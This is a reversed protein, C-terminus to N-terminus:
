GPTLKGSEHEAFDRLAETVLPDVGLGCRPDRGEHRRNEASAATRVDVDASRTVLYRGQAFILDFHIRTLARLDNRYDLLWILGDRDRFTLYQTRGYTVNRERLCHLGRIDGDLLRHGEKALARDRLEADTSEGHIMRQNFQEREDKIHRVKVALERIRPDDDLEARMHESKYSRRVELEHQVLAAEYKGNTKEYDAFAARSNSEAERKRQAADVARKYLAGANGFTFVNDWFKPPRLINSETRAKPVSHSYRARMELAEASVRVVELEAAKGRERLEELKIAFARRVQEVSNRVAAVIIEQTLADYQALLADDAEFDPIVFPVHAPLLDVIEM